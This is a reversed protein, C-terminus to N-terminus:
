LRITSRGALESIDFERQAGTGIHVLCVKDFDVPSLHKAVGNWSQNGGMTRLTFERNTQSSTKVEVRELRAGTDVILDYRSFDSVPLFVGCGLETYYAIARAIGIAGQKKKNIVSDVMFGGPSLYELEL